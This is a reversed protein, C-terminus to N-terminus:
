GGGNPPDLLRETPHTPAVDRLVTGDLLTVDYRLIPEAGNAGKASDPPTPGQLTGPWWAAYTGDKVSAEITTSGAHVTVGVVGPGVDGTTTAAQGGEGLGLFGSSVSLEATSGEALEHGTPPAWGGGGMLAHTVDSPEDTSRPPLHGLCAVTFQYRDAGTWTLLVSVWAGRRDALRTELDESAVRPAGDGGVTEGVQDLCAARLAQADQESAVAPKETWDAFAPQGGTTLPLAVAVATLAMATAVGWAVRRVPRRLPRPAVKVPVDPDATLVQELLRSQRDRDIAEDLPAADLRRLRQDLTLHDTM